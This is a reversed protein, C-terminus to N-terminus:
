TGRTHCERVRGDRDPVSNWDPRRLWESWVKRNAAPDNAALVPLDM